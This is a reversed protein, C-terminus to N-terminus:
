AAGVERAQPETAHPSGQGGGSGGEKPTAEARAGSLDGRTGFFVRPSVEQNGGEGEVHSSV